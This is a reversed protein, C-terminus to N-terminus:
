AFPTVDIAKKSAPREQCRELWKKVVPVDDLLDPRAYFKGLGLVWPWIAIDAITYENGVVYDHGELQKALVKLLRKSETEYREIAYPIKEKAFRTFHGLQGFMPGLGAVQWTLWQLTEWKQKKDTPILKGTKDALYQLIVGSEFLAIPEGNPGDPDVIAPIKNNPSVALFDPTFQEDKSINITHAEYALGLEELAAAIKIGNPTALSLLQIKGSQKADDLYRSVHYRIYHHSLITAAITLGPFVFM